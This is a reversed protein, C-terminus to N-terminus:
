GTKEGGAQDGDWYLADMEVFVMSGGVSQLAKRRYEKKFAKQETDAVPKQEVVPRKVEFNGKLFDNM